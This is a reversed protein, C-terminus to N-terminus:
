RLLLILHIKTDEVINYDKLTRSAKLECGAFILRQNDAPHGAQEEIFAKLDEITDDNSVLMPFNEGGITAIHIWIDGRSGNSGVRGRAASREGIPTDGIHKVILTAKADARHRREEDEDEGLVFSLKAHWVFARLPTPPLLPQLLQGLTRRTIDSVDTSTSSTGVQERSRDASSSTTLAELPAAATVSQPLKVYFPSVTMRPPGVRLGEVFGEFSCYLTWKRHAHESAAAALQSRFAGIIFSLSLDSSGEPGGLCHAIDTAASAHLVNSEAPKLAVEFRLAASRSIHTAFATVHSINASQM